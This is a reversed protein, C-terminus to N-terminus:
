PCAKPKCINCTAGNKGHSCTAGNKTPCPTVVPLPECITKEKMTVEDRCVTRPRRVKETRCVVRDECVYDTKCVRKKEPVCVKKEKTCPPCKKCMNCEACGYLVVGLFGVLLCSCLWRVPKM